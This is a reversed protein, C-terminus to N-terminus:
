GQKQASELVEAVHNKVSVKPWIHAIKGKEDILFTARQIGMYNKGYMNKEIWVGYDECISGNEDSILAFPFNFKCRFKDHSAVSDKSVGLIETNAAQFDEYLAAFDQGETTCGPTDDRPYFYLVLKKGEFDNLSVNHGKDNPLSFAPATDGITFATQSPQTM